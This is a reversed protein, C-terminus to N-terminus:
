INDIRRLTILGDQLKAKQDGAAEAFISIDGLLPRIIRDHITTNINVFLKGEYESEILSKLMHQTLATNSISIVGDKVLSAMRDIYGPYDMSKNIYKLVDDFNIEMQSIMEFIGGLNNTIIYNQKSGYAERTYATSRTDKFYEAFQKRNNSNIIYQQIFVEVVQYSNRIFFKYVTNAVDLINEDNVSHLEIAGPYQECITSLVRKAFHLEYAKKKNPRDGFEDELDKCYVKFYNVSFNNIKQHIQEIILEEQDALAMEIFAEESNTSNEILYSM